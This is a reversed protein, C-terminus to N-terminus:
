WNTFLQTCGLMEAGTVSSLVQLLVGIGFLLIFGVVMPVGVKKAAKTLDTEDAIKGTSIADWAYKAIIMGAGVFALTRLLKFIEQFEQILACVGDMSGMGSKAAFSPVAILCLAAMVFIKNIKMM